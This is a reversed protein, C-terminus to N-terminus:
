QSSAAILISDVFLTYSGSINRDNLNTIGVMVYALDKGPDLEFITTVWYDSRSNFPVVPYGSAESDTYAVAVVAVPGTARWRVLIYQYDNTSVNLRKVYYYYQYTGSTFAWSLSLVNGDTSISPSITGSYLPHTQWGSKFSDEKWGVTSYLENAEWIVTVADSRSVGDVRVLSNVDSSESPLRSSDNVILDQFTWSQPFGIISYVSSGSLTLNYKVDNKTLYSFRTPIDSATGNDFAVSVTPGVGEVAPIPYKFIALRNGGFFIVPPLVRSTQEVVRQFNTNRVSVVFYSVQADASSLASEMVGISPTEAMQLYIQVTWFSWEPVGFLGRPNAGYAYDAGLFGGALNEFSPDALVVFRGTADSDIYHIADIEYAAPQVSLIEKQPYAVYIAYTGLSAILLCVFLLRASRLVNKSTHVQVRSFGGLLSVISLFGVASFPLLIIDAMVLIRQPGFPLNKMGYMTLYYNGVVVVYFVFLLVAANREIRKSRMGFFVGILGIVLLVTTVIPLFSSVNELNVLNDLTFTAGSLYLLLPYALFILPFSVLKLTRRSTKHFVTGWFLFAFSFVGVQPHIFFTLVCSALALFWVRSSGVRAWYLILFVVFPFFVFGFSNPVSVAGWYILSSFLSASIAAVLPLTSGKRKSIMDALKYSFLPILFSWLVPIFVANIWYIDISFMRRFLVVLAYYAKYKVIDVVLRQSVVWGFAYSFGYNDIFRVQGLHGWPDGYRGPYWVILFISHVLFSEILVLVLKLTQRMRTLLVIVALSASSVFLTPLVFSPTTLWVSTEGADTRGLMLGYFTASVSVLFVITLAVIWLRGDKLRGTQKTLDMHSANKMQMSIIYIILGPALMSIVSALETFNSIMILATGLLSVIVLFSAFGLGEKIFPRDSPFFIKGLAQSFVVLLVLTVPIGILPSQIVSSNLVAVASLGIVLALKLLSLKDVRRTKNTNPDASESM